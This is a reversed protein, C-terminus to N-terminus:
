YHYYTQNLYQVVDDIEDASWKVKLEQTWRGVWYQIDEYTKAKHAGRIHVMSEHCSHCHNEYLLKGRSSPENTLDEGENDAKQNDLGEAATVASSMDQEKTPNEEIAACSVIPITVSFVLGLLHSRVFFKNKISFM